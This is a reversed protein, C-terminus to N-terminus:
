PRVEIGPLEVTVVGATVRISGGIDLARVVAQDGAHRALTAVLQLLMRLEPVNVQGLGASLTLHDGTDVVPCDDRGDTYLPARAADCMDDIQSPTLEIHRRKTVASHATRQRITAVTDARHAAAAEASTM